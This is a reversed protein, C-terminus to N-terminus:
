ALGAGAEPVRFHVTAGSRRQEQPSRLCEIRRRFGHRQDTTANAPGPDPRLQTRAIEGQNRNFIALPISLFLSASSVGGIHTYDATGTVDQKGNAKALAIQSQAATVGLQAARLDPRLGLAKAQLDDVGAKLPQYALDGIVDFNAPVADNGLLERLSVLAQM